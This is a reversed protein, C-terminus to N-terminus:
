FLTKAHQIDSFIQEKLEEISNFVIENRLRSIFEIEIVEGYIDNNFDLLHIEVQLSPNSKNITPRIGINLVAEYSKGNLRTHAAYVGNPPLILGKTALNATAFGIERGKGEGKVIPGEISFKRGLMQNAEDLKGKNLATRIRTSSIVQDDFIVPQLGHSSFGLKQGLKQLTKFNGHRNHGFMFDRGVSISHISGFGKALEQIFAEGTKLSFAEDFKIILIAEIGLLEIARIRQAQTQILAPAKPSIINAPHQDFTIAVSISNNQSAAQVAQKLVQQHGLHVGDFMGIALCVKREKNYLDNPQSLQKM